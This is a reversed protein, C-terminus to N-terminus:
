NVAWQGKIKTEEMTNTGDLFVDICKISGNFNGGANYYKWNSSICSAVSAFQPYNASFDKMEDPELVYMESELDQSIYQNQGVSSYTFFTLLNKLASMWGYGQEYYICNGAKVVAGYTKTSKDVRFLVKKYTWGWFDEVPFTTTKGDVKIMIKKWGSIKVFEYDIGKKDIYDNYSKYMTIQASPTIDNVQATTTTWYCICVIFIVITNFLRM